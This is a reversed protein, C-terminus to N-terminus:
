KFNVIDRSLLNLLKVVPVGSRIIIEDSSIVIRIGTVRKALV